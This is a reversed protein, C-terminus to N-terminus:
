VCSCNGMENTGLNIIRSTDAFALFLAFYLVSSRETIINLFPFGVIITVIVLLVLKRHDSNYTRMKTYQVVLKFIFLVIWIMGLIGTQFVFGLLGIDSTYYYYYQTGYIINTLSFTSGLLGIGFIPYELFLDFYYQIESLRVGVTGSDTQYQKLVSFIVDHYFAVDRFIFLSLILPLLVYFFKFVIYKGRNFLYLILFALGYAIIFNRTQSVYLVASVQISFYVIYKLKIKKLLSVFTLMMSFLILPFGEFFRVHGNRMSYNVHFITFRPYLVVQILFFIALLTGIIVILDWISSEGNKGIASFLKVFYFYLFYIFVYHFGYLGDLIPQGYRFFAYIVSVLVVLVLSLIWYKFTYNSRIISNIHLVGYLLGIISVVFVLNRNQLYFLSENIIILTIVILYKSIGINNSPFFQSKTFM